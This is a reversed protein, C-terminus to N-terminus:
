ADTKIEAEFQCTGIPKGKWFEEPKGSLDIIDEQVDESLDEFLLDMFFINPKIKREVENVPIYIPWPEEPGNTKKSM